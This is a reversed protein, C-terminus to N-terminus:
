FPVAELGDEFCNTCIASSKPDRNSYSQILLSVQQVLKEPRAIIKHEEYM